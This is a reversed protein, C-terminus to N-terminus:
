LIQGGCATALEDPHIKPIKGKLQIEELNRHGEPNSQRFCFNRSAATYEEGDFAKL